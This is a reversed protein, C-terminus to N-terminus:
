KMAEKIELAAKRQDPKGTIASGVIIIEPRYPIIHQLKDAAIGGAVAPKAHQLVQHLLKLEAYPNQGQQQLDSATHVCIYDIAFKDIHKVRTELDQVAIMDVMVEKQYARAARVVNQITTDAAVGLVTVIDAGADYALRAEHDGADMIKMDALVSLSSYAQKIETIAHVGEKLIFPTGIEVIDIVDSLEALIAKAGAIDVLDLALQLRM